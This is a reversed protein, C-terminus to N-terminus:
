LKFPFDKNVEQISVIIRLITKDSNAKKRRTEEKENGANAALSRYAVQSAHPSHGLITFPFLAEHVTSKTGPSQFLQTLHKYGSLYGLSLV